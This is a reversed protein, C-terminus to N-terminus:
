SLSSRPTATTLESCREDRCHHHLPFDSWRAIFTSFISQFESERKHILLSTCSSRAQGVSRQLPRKHKASQDNYLDRTSPRSITTFTEQAQGVSQQLPRKHKALQDNYLDSTSPRSITTFTEQAQGVSQQLPRKHKASQNNYLDRASFRTITHFATQGSTISRLPYAHHARFAYRKKKKSAYFDGCSFHKTSELSNEQGCFRFDENSFRTLTQVRM